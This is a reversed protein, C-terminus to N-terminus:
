AVAEITLLTPHTILAERLADQFHTTIEAATFGFTILDADLITGRVALTAIVNAMRKRVVEPKPTMRASASPSSSPSRFRDPASPDVAGPPIRGDYFIEADHRSMM